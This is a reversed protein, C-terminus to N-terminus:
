LNLVLLEYKPRFGPTVLIGTLAAPPYQERKVLSFGARRIRHLGEASQVLDV